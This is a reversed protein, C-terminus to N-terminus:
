RAKKRCPPSWGGQRLCPRRPSAHAPARNGPPPRRRPRASHPGALIPWCLYDKLIQRAGKFGIPAIRRRLEARSMKGRKYRGLQVSHSALGWEFFLALIGSSLPQALRSPRWRQEEHVRLAGFGLDRDKGLVNTWDHHIVNHFNRWQESPCTNDWEWTSARISPDRLWDWQGHMRLIRPRLQEGLSPWRPIKINQGTSLPERASNKNRHASVASAAQAVDPLRGM